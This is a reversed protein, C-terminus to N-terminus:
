FRKPSQEDNKNNSIPSIGGKPAHQLAVKFDDYNVSEEMKVLIEDLQISSDQKRYSFDKLFGDKKRRRQTSSQSQKDQQNRKSSQKRSGDKRSINEKKQPESSKQSHYKNNKIPIDNM